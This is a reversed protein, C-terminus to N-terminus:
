DHYIYMKRKPSTFKSTVSAFFELSSFKNKSCIIYSRINAGTGNIAEDRQEQGSQRRDLFLDDGEAGAGVRAEEPERALERAGREDVVLEIEGGQRARLDGGDRPGREEGRQDGGREGEGGGAQVGWAVVDVGDVQAREVGRGGRMMTMRTGVRRRLEWVDLRGHRREDDGFAAEDVQRGVGGVGHGEVQGAGEEGRGRWQAHDEVFRDPWM